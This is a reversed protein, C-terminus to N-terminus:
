EEDIKKMADQIVGLGVAIGNAYESDLRQFIRHHELQSEVIAKLREWKDM